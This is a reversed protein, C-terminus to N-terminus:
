QPRIRELVLVWDQPSPVNPAEYEGAWFAPVTKAVGAPDTFVVDLKVNAFPEPHPRAAAFATEVPVNAGTKPTAAALLAAPASLWLVLTTPLLRM